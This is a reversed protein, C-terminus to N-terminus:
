TGVPYCDSQVQDSVFGTWRTGCNRRCVANANLVAERNLALEDIVAVLEYAADQVGQADASLASVGSVVSLADELRELSETVSDRRFKSGLGSDPGSMLELGMCECVSARGSLSDM